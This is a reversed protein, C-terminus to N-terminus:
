ATTRRIMMGALKAWLSHPLWSLLRMSATFIFPFAIEKKGQELGERIFQSAEKVTVQGPMPFDNKETLPTDVFGPRILTVEIGEAKLDIALSRALYDLAAKSAGYAEARTLPLFTVSSSVIAIRSGPKMKPLLAALCNVTGQVNTDMVRQFLTADFKKADDIYECYGANLIVLDAASEKELAQQTQEADTMDFTCIKSPYLDLARFLKNHDRGCAIVQHRDLAYDKALQLGIGSSAGTILVTKM